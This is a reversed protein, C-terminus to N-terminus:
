NTFDYISIQAGAKVQKVEVVHDKFFRLLDKKGELQQQHIQDRLRYRKM